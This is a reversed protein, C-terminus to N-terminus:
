APQFTEDRYVDHTAIRNRGMRKAKYLAKDARAYLEASDVVADAFATATGVSVTLMDGFEPNQPLRLRMVNSRIREAVTMAGSADTEGLVIAFEEGGIRCCADNARNAVNAIAAAIRKLADDGAPHGFGDNFVKFHDIDFIVISAAKGRLRSETLIDDFREDFGRRNLLGTLPDRLTTEILSRKDAAFAVLQRNANRLQVVLYLMYAVSGSALTAYWGLSFTKALAESGTWVDVGFAVIIVAFWLSSTHRLRTVSCLVILALAAAGLLGPEVFRHFLPSFGDDDGIFPLKGHALVAAAAAVSAATMTCIAFRGGLSRAAGIDYVRKALTAEGIAYALALAIFTAHGLIWLWMATQTGLGFGDSSFVHPTVLLYPVLLLASVGFLNSLLALTPLNTARFQTRSLTASVLMAVFGATLIMPLAADTGGLSLSGFRWAAAAVAALVLAVACAAIRESQPASASSPLANESESSPHM